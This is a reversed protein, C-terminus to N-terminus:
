CLNTDYQAYFRKLREIGKDVFDKYFYDRDRKECTCFKFISYLNEYDQLIVLIDQSNDWSPLNFKQPPYKRFLETSRCTLYFDFAVSDDFAAFLDGYSMVMKHYIECPATYRYVVSWVSFKHLDGVKRLLLDVDFLSICQEKLIDAYQIYTSAFSRISDEVSKVKNDYLMGFYEKGFDSLYRDYLERGDANFRGSPVNVYMMKNIVYQPCPVVKQTLPNFVGRRLYDVLQETTKGRLLVSGLGKSQWHKPMCNKYVQAPYVTKLSPVYEVILSGDRVIYDDSDCSRDLFPALVSSVLSDDFYSLDKTVYKAVYKAGGALSRILISAAEGKNDVYVGNKMRPFMFGYRWYERCKEAFVVENVCSELFFLAHYHPRKTNSGYESTFFYRYSGKGYQRNAFVKIKNLFRLVDDHRFCPIVPRNLVRLHPLCADNYTFTLFIAKGGRAYLDSMELSIRTQWENRKVQRCEFCSGCPVDYYSPASHLAPNFYVGPNKIKIPSTCM